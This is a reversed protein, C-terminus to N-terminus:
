SKLNMFSLNNFGELKNQNIMTIVKNVYEYGTEAYKELYRACNKGQLVKNNLKMLNRYGRLKKYAPHSNINLIYSNVSEQLNKFSKVSFEANPLNKPKIGKNKSWTWQGFLANGKQAFRSMGWGSEIAAQAMMMSIPLVDIKILLENKLKRIKKMSSENTLECLSKKIKYKFCIVKLEQFKKEKFVKITLKREIKILENGKLLLPLLITIFLKKRKKIEYAELDDPLQSFFIRPIRLKDNVDKLIQDSWALAIEKNFIDKTSLGSNTYVDDLKLNRLNLNTQNSDSRSPSFHNDLHFTPSKIKWFGPGILGILVLSISFPILFYQSNIKKSIKQDNFSINKM